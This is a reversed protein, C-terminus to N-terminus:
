STAWATALLNTLDPHLGDRWATHNHLDAVEYLRAAYRQEVLAEAMLRNNHLNEEPRGCTLSGAGARLVV